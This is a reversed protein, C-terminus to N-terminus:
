PAPRGTFRARIWAVATPLFSGLVAGTACLLAINGTGGDGIHHGFWAGLGAFALVSLVIWPTLYQRNM